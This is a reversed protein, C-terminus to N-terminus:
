LPICLLLVCPRLKDIGTTAPIQVHLSRGSLLLRRRSSLGPRRSGLPGDPSRRRHQNRRRVRDKFRSILLLGYDSGVAPLVIVALALVIWYM